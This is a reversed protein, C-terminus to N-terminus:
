ELRYGLKQLMNGMVSHMANIEKENFNQKWLGPSAARVFKGPGKRAEPLNEYTYEDVIKRLQGEDISTDIFQYVQKVTDYTRARLDEYRIMMSLEKPRKEHTKLLLETTAVWAKAHSTIISIKQEQSLSDSVKMGPGKAQWGGDRISDIKSDVVDRGDRILFIIKSNPLCQSIVDVAASGNPEKIIIKKNFDQFQAAVRNLILRRLYFM